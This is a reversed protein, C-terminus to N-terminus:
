RSQFEPSGIVMATLLDLKDNANAPGGDAAPRNLQQLILGNTQSSVKGGVLSTELVSLALEAGTGTAKVAAGSAVSPQERVTDESEAMGEMDGQPKKMVQSAQVVHAQPAHPAVNAQTADSLTQPTTGAPQSMLGLALLRGSDFKQGNYRGSTLSLAFNLRGLLANTNMWHDATIYYGTPEIKRYLGQGMQDITQVLAGPNTPDTATSRYVSAVFEVPTKVKNRFYQRSNFEPSKVMTRLIEKIDGGTAMYTASMADVVSAPPNDAIFRQALKWSIFHATKPSMALTKLAQLGENAEGEPITQGYWQKAGPEHKKPDFIFGGALEPHDISWGTLVAALSTVDAQTYGGNVSVTHLEMVERAYNENLGRSGKKGGPMNAPSDPGISIWNDLYVMMAPSTATAMLLNPFKDLAHARIVDREYQSMYWRDQDKPGYINFHNFWFDAMVAQLQRESLIDRLIRAQSIEDLARYSADPNPTALVYFYERERPTFDGLLTNRQQGELYMAFDIRDQVPMKLLAGMRQQKPMAFLEGAIRAATAKREAKQEDTVKFLAENKKADRELRMKEVQAEYVAALMPDSPYPQKGDAIRNITGRDPYTELVQKPSMFLTPYDRLRRDCEGDPISAPNLQAEFWKAPGDPGAAMLKEVDGPRAGFSFRNLMQQAKERQTLPQEKHAPPTAPKAPHKPTTAAVAFIGAMTPITLLLRFPHM